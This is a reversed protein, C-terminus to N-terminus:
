AQKEACATKKEAERKRAAAYDRAAYAAANGEGAAKVYQYPKGAVDGAAFLGPLNTKLGGTTRVHAGDTELGGALAAPPAANRLLFLGDANVEGGEFRVREIRKTGEAAIPKKGAVEIKPSRFKPAAYPCFAYVKAAFGALYEAEEEYERTSVYVAITKNKYLAGDCVACYSVGRGLFQEEGAIQGDTAVGTALIAARARYVTEGSTITFGDGTAYIGDARAQVLRVGERAMQAELAACLSEGDGSFAPYNRVHEAYRLKGFGREGLWLYDTKLSNLTLAASFGAIGGGVVAVDYIHEM